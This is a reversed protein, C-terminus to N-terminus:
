SEGVILRNRNMLHYLYQVMGTVMGDLAYTQPREFASITHEFGASPISTRTKNKIHITYNQHADDGNHKTCITLVRM